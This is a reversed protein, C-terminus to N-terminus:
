AAVVTRHLFREERCVACMQHETEPDCDDLSNAGAYHVVGWRHRDSCEQPPTPDIGDEVRRKAVILARSYVESPTPAMRHGERFLDHVAEFVAGTTFDQFESWLQSVAAWARQNPGWRSEILDCLRGMDTPTM